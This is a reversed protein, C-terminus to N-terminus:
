TDIVEITHLMFRRVIVWGSPMLAVDDAMVTFASEREIHILIREALDVATVLSNPYTGLAWRTQVLYRQVFRALFVRM